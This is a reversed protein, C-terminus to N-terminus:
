TLALSWENNGGSGPLLVGAVETSQVGEDEGYTVTGIQANAATFTIINGATLGHVLSLAGVDNARGAALWDKTALPVSEFSASFETARDMIDVREAGIRNRYKVDLGGTLSFAGAVLAQTHLSLTTNAKNVPVPRAIGAYTVAPLAANALPNFLGTLSFKLVPNGEANVTASWTGRASTLIHNNGGYNVYITVAALSASAPAYTVSTANVTTVAAACAQMLADWQPPTGATGSGSFPVEIEVAMNASATTKEAAGFYPRIPRREVVKAALPTLKIMDVQVANAAGTPVSDTGVTVEKKVLVAVNRLLIPPPM